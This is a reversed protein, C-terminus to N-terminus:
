PRGANAQQWREQIVRVKADFQPDHELDSLLPAPLEVIRGNNRVVQVFARKRRPRDKSSYRGQINPAAVPIDTVREINYAEIGTITSWPVFRHLFGHVDIGEATIRTSFRGRLVYSTLRIISYALPLVFLWRLLPISHWTLVVLVIAIILSITGSWLQRSRMGPGPRFEVDDM